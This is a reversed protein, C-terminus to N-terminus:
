PQITEEIGAFVSLAGTRSGSFFISKPYKMIKFNTNGTDKLAKEILSLHSKPPEQRDKRQKILEPWSIKTLATGRNVILILPVAKEKPLPLFGIEM